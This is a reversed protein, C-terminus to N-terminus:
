PVVPGGDFQGGDVAYSYATDNGPLHPFGRFNLANAFKKRCTALSKDCGAAVSFADGLAIVPGVSPLLTLLVTGDEIRHAVIHESRGQRAGGTWLLTGHAFWGGAFDGLGSVAITDASGALAVVGEGAFGSAGLDVGCRADGLEADCARTVYRGNPQDLAHVLSELEAVFHEGGRTLKGITSTRILAFVAPDRWNVLFAEVRASDYLGAAIDEARIRESCLAGEVDVTDVALGLSDRAESAALGTGPEYDVGAVTLRRDHDTFGSVQGDRRTLRWCQCVTTVDRALHAALAQPFASM